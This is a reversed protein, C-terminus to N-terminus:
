RKYTRILRPHVLFLFDELTVCFSDLGVLVPFQGLFWGLLIGVM